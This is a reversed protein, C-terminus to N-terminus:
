VLLKKEEKAIVEAVGDVACIAKAMPRLEGRIQLGRVLNVAALVVSTGSLAIFWWVFPLPMRALALVSSAASAAGSGLVLGAGPALGAGVAAVGVAAAGAALSSVALPVSSPVMSARATSGGGGPAPPPYVDYKPDDDNPM